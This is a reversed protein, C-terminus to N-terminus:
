NVMPVVKGKGEDHKHKMANIISFFFEEFVARLIFHKVVFYEHTSLRAKSAKKVEYPPVNGIV